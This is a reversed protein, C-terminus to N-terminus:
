ARDGGGERLRVLASLCAQWEGKALSGSFEELVPSVLKAFAADEVGLDRVIEIVNRKAESAPIRRVAAADDKPEMSRGPPVGFLIRRLFGRLAEVNAFRGAHEVLVVGADAKGKPKWGPPL